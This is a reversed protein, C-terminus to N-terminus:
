STHEAAGKSGAKGWNFRVTHSLRGNAKVTFHRFPRMLNMASWSDGDFPQVTRMEPPGEPELALVFRIGRLEFKAAVVRREDDRTIERYTMYEGLTFQADNAAAVYMGARGQFPQLGYCTRVLDVPARGPQDGTPGILLDTAHTFNLVVKLLWRELLDARVELVEEMPRTYPPLLRHREYIEGSRRLTEFVEGASQDLPSLASNHRRCLMKRAYSEVSMQRPGMTIKGSRTVVLSPAPFVSRSVYHEASLKGDCNGLPAAWCYRASGTPPTSSSEKKM